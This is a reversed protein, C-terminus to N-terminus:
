VVSKRDAAADTASVPAVLVLKLMVAAAALLSVNLWCGVVVVAPCLMEGATVTRISSWNPFRTVALVAATRRATPACGPPPGRPPLAASPAAPPCAGDLSREM